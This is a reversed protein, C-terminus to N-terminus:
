FLLLEYTSEDRDNSEKGSDRRYRGAIGQERALLQSQDGIIRDIAELTKPRSENLAGVNAINKCKVGLSSRTLLPLIQIGTFKSEHSSIFVALSWSEHMPQDIKAVRIKNSMHSNPNAGVCHHVSCFDLNSDCHFYLGLRFHNTDM